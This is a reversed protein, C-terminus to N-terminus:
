DKRAERRLAAADAPRLWRRPSPLLAPVRAQYLRYAAGHFTVLRREELRLGVLVYATALAAAMLRAADMDRTWLLVLGLAYWPHRVFHHLPSLHFAEQDEVRREGARWQRLGIFEKGDYDRLTWLFGLAALGALGNALWQWPGRWEWLMPGPWALTGALLPLLLALALINYALRYGPMLDPRRAAVFRKAALSALASHLTFYVTWALALAALQGTGGSV